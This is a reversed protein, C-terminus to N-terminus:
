NVYKMNRSKESFCKQNNNNNNDESFIFEKIAEKQLRREFEVFPFHDHSRKRLKSEGNCYSMLTEIKVIEFYILM